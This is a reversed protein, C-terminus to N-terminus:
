NFVELLKMEKGCGKDCIYNSYPCNESHILEKTKLNKEHCEPHKCENKSFECNEEHKEIEKVKLTRNCGNSWYKCKIIMEDIKNKM